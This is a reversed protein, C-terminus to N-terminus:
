GTAHQWWWSRSRFDDFEARMKDLAATQEAMRKSMGILEGTMAVVEAVLDDTRKNAIQAEQRRQEGLAETRAITEELKAIYAELAEIRKAATDAEEPRQQSLAETKSVAEELTATHAELARIRAYPDPEPRSRPTDGVKEAKVDALIRAQLAEAIYPYPLRAIRKQTM